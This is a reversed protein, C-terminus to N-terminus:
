SEKKRGRGQPASANEPTAGDEAPPPATAPAADKGKADVAPKFGLAAAQDLTCVDFALPSQDDYYSQHVARLAGGVKFDVPVWDGADFRLHGLVFVQMAHERKPDYPKLRAFLQTM